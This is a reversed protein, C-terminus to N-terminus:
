IHILSLDAGLTGSTIKDAALSPIQSSTLGSVASANGSLNAYVTGVYKSAQFAATGTVATRAFFDFDTVQSKTITLSAQHQTVNSAPVRADPISGSALQTAALSM